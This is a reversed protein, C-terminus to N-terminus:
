QVPCMSDPQNPSRVIYKKRGARAATLVAARPLVTLGCKCSSAELSRDDPADLVDVLENHQDRLDRRDTLLDAIPGLRPRQFLVVVLAPRDSTAASSTNYVTGLPSLEAHAACWIRTVVRQPSRQIAELAARADADRAAHAEGYFEVRTGDPQQVRHPEYRSM